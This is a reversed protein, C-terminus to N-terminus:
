SAKEENQFFKVIDEKNKFQKFEKAQVKIVKDVDSNSVYYM